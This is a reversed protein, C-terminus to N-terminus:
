MVIQLRQVIPHLSYNWPMTDTIGPSPSSTLVCVEFDCAQKLSCDTTYPGNGRDHAEMVTEKPEDGAEAASFTCLKAVLPVGGSLIPNLFRDRSSVVM